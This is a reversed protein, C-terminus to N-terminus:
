PLVCHRSSQGSILVTPSTILCVVHEGSWIIIIQRAEILKVHIVHVGWVRVTTHEKRTDGTSQRFIMCIHEIYLMCICAQAYRTLAMGMTISGMEICRDIYVGVIGM